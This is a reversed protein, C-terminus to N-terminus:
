RSDTLGTSGRYIAMQGARSAERLFLRLLVFSQGAILGIVLGAASDRTLLRDLPIYIALAAAQLGISSLELSGIRLPHALVFRLAVGLSDLMSRAGSVVAHVRAYDAVLVTLDFLILFLLARGWQLALGWREDEVQELADDLADALHTNVMRHVLWLLPLSLLFLRLFRPFWLRCATMFRDIPQKEYTDQFAQLMGGAFFCGSLVSLFAALGVLDLTAEFARAQSTTVDVWWPMDLRAAMQDSAPHRSLSRELPGLLPLVAAASLVLNAGLLWWVLRANRAAVALGRILAAPGSM